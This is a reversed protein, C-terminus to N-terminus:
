MKETQLEAIQEILFNIDRDLYKYKEAKTPGMVAPDEGALLDDFEKKIRKKNELETELQRLYEGPKYLNEDGPATFLKKQKYPLSIRDKQKQRNITFKLNIEQEIKKNEIDIKIDTKTNIEKHAPKLVRKKFDFYRPYKEPAIGLKKKLKEVSINAICFKRKKKNGLMYVCYEYIGISYKSNLKLINELEYQTYRSNLEVLYPMLVEDIQMTVKTRDESYETTFIVTQKLGGTEKNIIQLVGKKLIKLTAQMLNTYSKEPMGLDELVKKVPFTYKNIKGDEQIKSILYAFVKSQILNLKWKSEIVKILENDKKVIGNIM